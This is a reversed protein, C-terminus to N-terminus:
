LSTFNDCRSPKLKRHIFHAKFYTDVRNNPNLSMSFSVGLVSYQLHLIFTKKRWFNTVEERKRSNINSLKKRVTCKHVEQYHKLFM